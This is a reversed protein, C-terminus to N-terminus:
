KRKKCRKIHDNLKEAQQSAYSWLSTVRERERGAKVGQWVVVGVLVLTATILLCELPVLM